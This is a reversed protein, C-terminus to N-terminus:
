SGAISQTASWHTLQEKGTKRQMLRALLQSDDKSLTDGQVGGRMEEGGEM